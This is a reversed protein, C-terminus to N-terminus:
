NIPRPATGAGMRALVADRVRRLEDARAEANMGPLAPISVLVEGSAAGPKQQGVQIVPDAPHTFGEVLVLDPPKGWVREAAAAALAVAGGPHAAPAAIRLVTEVPGALVVVRAGAEVMRASDSGERDADYGHAAHKVAVARIGDAVLRQILDVIVITKGSGSAGVIGIVLPGPHVPPLILRDRDEDRDLRLASVPTGSPLPPTGPPILVLANAGLLAGVTGAADGYLIEASPLGTPTPVIRAWLARAEEAPRSFGVALAADELPRIVRRRGGLRLLFPRALLHFAALCAVPTGSLGVAWSAAFRGTFFPGGPKLDVRGVIRQAGLDLWTRHVADYRGISVGGTSLVVDYADRLAAFIRRMDDPADRVIGRYDVECGAARLLGRLTVANSNFVRGPPPAAAGDTAEVLEDGTAVVAVRPRRYVSVTGLGCAALAGAATPGVVEGAAILAAGERILEGPPSIHTKRGPSQAIQVDDGQRRVMEVPVVRDGRPPMPAGTTIAWAEGRAPGGEPGEGMRVGGTLRLVVPRDPSAGRVDADHCLYGDMAARAFHPVPATARVDEAAVRGAADAAPVSEASLPVAAALLRGLAEELRAM